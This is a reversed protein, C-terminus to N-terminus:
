TEDDTSKARLNNSIYIKCFFKGSLRRNWYISPLTSLSVRPAPPCTAWPTLETERKVLDLLSDFRLDGYQFREIGPILDGAGKFLSRAGSQKLQLLPMGQKSLHCRLARKRLRGADASLWCSSSSERNALHSEKTRAEANLAMSAHPEAYALFHGHCRLRCLM